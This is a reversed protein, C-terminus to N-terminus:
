GFIHVHFNVWSSSNEHVIEVRSNMRQFHGSSNAWKSFFDGHSNVTWSLEEDWIILARVYYWFIKINGPMYVYDQSEKKRSLHRDMLTIFYISSLCVDGLESGWFDLPLKKLGKTMQLLVVLYCLAEETQRRTQRIALFRCDREQRVFIVTYYIKQM